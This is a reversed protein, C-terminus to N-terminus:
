STPWQHTLGRMISGFHSINWNASSNCLKSLVSHGFHWMWHSYKAAWPHLVYRFRFRFRNSLAVDLPQVQGCVSTFSFRFRHSPSPTAM